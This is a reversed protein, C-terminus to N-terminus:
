VRVLVFDKFYIILFCKSYFTQIIFYKSYFSQIVVYKSNFKQPVLTSYQGSKQIQSSFYM